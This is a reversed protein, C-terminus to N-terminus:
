QYQIYVPAPTLKLVQLPTLLGTSPPLLDNKYFLKFGTFQVPETAVIQTYTNIKKAKDGWGDMDVVIQVEPLPAIQKYHTVMDETFRHVVLIKPPLDHARVLSALYQAAYNIDAADFVGIVRGPPASGKMSFEPDIGLHVSPMALYKEYQPLEKQLTSKGVQFDLFVIGHIQDALQLAKDVLADSMRARYMGDSGPAAQATVVILHIAPIVPTSPDAAEWERTTSALKALMEPPDYQGLVGMGRSLFNGYYAVIRNFPLLAGANPYARKVPWTPRPLTTSATTTGQMFASHWPSSTAVHALALLREDYGVRDFEPKPPDARSFGVASGPIELGFTILYFLVAALLLSVLTGGAVFSLRTERHRARSM